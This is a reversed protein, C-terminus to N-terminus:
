CHCIDIVFFEPRLTFDLRALTLLAIDVIDLKDHIALLAAADDPLDQNFALYESGAEAWVWVNCCKVFTLTVMRQRQELADHHM